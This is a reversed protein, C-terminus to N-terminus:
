FPMEIATLANPMGDHIIHATAPRASPPSAAVTADVDMAESSESNLAATANEKGVNRKTRRHKAARERAKIASSFMSLNREVFAMAMGDADGMVKLIAPIFREEEVATLRLEDAIFEKIAHLDGDPTDRALMCEVATIVGLAHTKSITLERSLRVVDHSTLCTTLTRIWGFSTARSIGVLPSPPDEGSDDALTM